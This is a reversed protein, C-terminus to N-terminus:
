NVWQLSDTITDFLEAMADAIPELPTSFSLLLYAYADPVPLHYDVNITATYGQAADKKAPEKRALVRVASGTTLEGLAIEHDQPSENELTQALEAPTLEEQHILPVLTVLLSAPITVPGTSMLSLYLEIGGEEHAKQARRRMDKSIDQKIHPADDIGRFQRDLLADISREREGSELGIRFWDEPLLLQYDRPPPGPSGKGEAHVGAEMEPAIKGTESM